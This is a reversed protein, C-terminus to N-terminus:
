ASPDPVQNQKRRALASLSLPKRRLRRLRTNRKSKV